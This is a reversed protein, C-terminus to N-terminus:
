RDWNNSNNNYAVSHAGHQNELQRLHRMSNVTIPGMNPNSGLNMTTFPFTSKATDMTRPSKDCHDCVWGRSKSVFRGGEHGCDVCKAKAM